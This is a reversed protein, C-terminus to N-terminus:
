TQFSGGNNYAILKIKKGVGDQGYYYAQKVQMRANTVGLRTKDSATLYYWLPLVPYEVFVSLNSSVKDIDAGYIRARYTWTKDYYATTIAIDHTLSTTGKNNTLSVVGSTIDQIELTFFGEVNSPVSATLRVKTPEGNVVDVLSYSITPTSPAPIETTYVPLTLDGLWATDFSWDSMYRMTVNINGSNIRSTGVGLTYEIDESYMEDDVLVHRIDATSSPTAYTGSTTLQKGTGNTPQWDATSYETAKALVRNTNGYTPTGNFRKNWGYSSAYNRVVRWPWTTENNIYAGNFLICWGSKTLNYSWVNLNYNIRVTATTYTSSIQTVEFRKGYTANTDLAM